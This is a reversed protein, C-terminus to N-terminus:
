RCRTRNQPRDSFTLTTDILPLRTAVFGFFFNFFRVRKVTKEMNLRNQYVIATRTALKWSWMIEESSVTAHNEAQVTSSAKSKPILILSLDESSLAPYDHLGQLVQRQVLQYIEILAHYDVVPLLKHFPVPVPPCRKVLDLLPSQSLVLHNQTRQFAGPFVTKSSFSSLCGRGDRYLTDKQKFSYREGYLTPNPYASLPPAMCAIDSCSLTATNQGSINFTFVIRRGKEGDDYVYVSNVLTDVVRRRYEIDDIDGSKFSNLWHIIREKTLLPKKMEERAIKGELDNKEAELEDMREKTTPTIIGQEIANMLNKIKKKIDKLENQLGNLYSTDASEKEIIEMTKRAIREITEDNLVNQVTFRVVLEEIWDKKEVAKKCKHNRKRDICKYYHHLKGSRSTGSEGVMSSGCHGCFLKTTLLYDDKAKNRARASYNHRLTAQVKEFLERSIIPPVGDEVVVDAFRYVGIYRDNKLMTRLSNKNFANGRSTKYGRRNCENIIQTASMGDAYMQFIEQVIKAGVPDIKYKRDEGVTYGLPMGAGGVALCQLANEKLGRKINRSLNESYYEAYGELVSELIIGEPTDPMPQKAYYVKVGNKKLKAKYIASDYRNRAFRDLTYMIVAEFQGKESDKILRQFNPRNDTKGSIARDCYEGIITM